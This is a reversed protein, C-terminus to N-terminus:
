PGASGTIWLGFVIVPPISLISIIMTVMVVRVATAIDGGYRRVLLIPFVAAPMAAQIVLIRKLEIPLPALGAILLMLSPLAILRIVIAMIIEPLHRTKPTQPDPSRQLLDRIIAGILLLSVPVACDSVMSIPRSLIEPLQNISFVSNLVLCVVTTLLPANLLNKWGGSKGGTLMMIAATWLVIELGTSFMLQIPIIEKGFLTLLIPIPIFGYNQLGAAVAFTRRNAKEMRISSAAIYAIGLGIIISLGGIAAAAFIISRSGLSNNDLLHHIIFAPFLLNLVLSLLSKDAHKSLIRLRRLCYGAAIVAFVPICANFITIYSPM